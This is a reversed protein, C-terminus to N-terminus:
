MILKLVKTKETDKVTDIKETDLVGQIRQIETDTNERYRFKYKIGESAFNNM